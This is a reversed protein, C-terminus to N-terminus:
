PWPHQEQSLPDSLLCSVSSPNEMHNSTEIQLIPTILNPHYLLTRGKESRIQPQSPETESRTSRTLSQKQNQFPHIKIPRPKDNNTLHTQPGHAMLIEDHAKSPNKFM